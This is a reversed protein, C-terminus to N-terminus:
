LTIRLGIYLGGQIVGESALDIQSDFNHLVSRRVEYPEGLNIGGRYEAVVFLKTRDVYRSIPDTILEEAIEFYAANSVHGLFDYDTSRFHWPMLEYQDLAKIELRHSVRKHIPGFKYAEHFEPSLSKPTRTKSDTQIWLSSVEAVVDGELSIVTRRQTWARGTGTCFTSVQVQDRYKAVQTIQIHTRRVVWIGQDDLGTAAMDAAAVDQALRAVTDFRITGDIATDSLGLVRTQTFIRGSKYDNFYIPSEEPEFTLLTQQTM